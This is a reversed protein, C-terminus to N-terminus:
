HAPCRQGWFRDSWTLLQYNIKERADAQVIQQFCSPCVKQGAVKALKEPIGLKKLRDTRNEVAIKERDVAQNSIIALGVEGKFQPNNVLTSPKSYEGALQAYKEAAQHGIEGAILMKAAKKDQLAEIVEPYLATEAAQEKTLVMIIRERFEGLYQAREEGKLEPVGQLGVSIVKEM